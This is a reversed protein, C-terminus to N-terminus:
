KFFHKSDEYSSIEKVIKFDDAILLFESYKIYRLLNKYWIYVFIGFLLLKLISGQSVGSPAIFTASLKKGEKSKTADIPNWLYWHFVQILEVNSDKGYKIEIGFTKM